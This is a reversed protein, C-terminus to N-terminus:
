QPIVMLKMNCIPCIGSDAFIKNECQMPCEYVIILAKAISDNVITSTNKDRVDISCNSFLIVLIGMWFLKIM